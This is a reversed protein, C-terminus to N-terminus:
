INAFFGILTITTTTDILFSVVAIAIRATLPRYLLLLLFIMDGYSRLFAVRRSTMMTTM